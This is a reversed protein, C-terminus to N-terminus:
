TDTACVTYTYSQLYRRWLKDAYGMHGMGDNKDITQFVNPACMDVRKSVTGYGRAGEGRPRTIADVGGLSRAVCGPAAVSLVHVTAHMSRGRRDGRGM